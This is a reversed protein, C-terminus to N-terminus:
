LSHQSQDDPVNRVQFELETVTRSPLYQTSATLVPRDEDDRLHVSGLSVSKTRKVGSDLRDDASGESSYGNSGRPLASDPPRSSADVLRQPNRPPLTPPGPADHESANQAYHALLPEFSGASYTTTHGYSSKRDRASGFEDVGVGSHAPREAGPPPSATRAPMYGGPHGRAQHGVPYDIYPNFNDGAPGDFAGSAPRGSTPQSSSSGLGNGFLSGRQGMESSFHSRTYASTTGGYENDDDLPTRNFGAAAVAAEVATDQEIRQMRQRRRIAFLIWLMISAAALGVVVFVGVVAGTNSFFSSEGANNNNPALTPNVVAQTVTTVIGGSGVTTFLETVVSPASTI